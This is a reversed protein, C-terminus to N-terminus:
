EVVINIDIYEDWHIHPIPLSLLTEQGLTRFICYFCVGDHDFLESSQLSTRYATGSKEKERERERERM